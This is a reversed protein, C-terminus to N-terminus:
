RLAVEELLPQFYKEHPQQVVWHCYRSLTWCTISRVMAKKDSLCQILYPILEALHAIMGNMCGPFTNISCIAISHFQCHHFFIFFFSVSRGEAIAGLALIGSEKILWDDHFLTEKLIPLLIHLLREQFINSLVDLSAASCKRLNWETLTEDVNEDEDEEDGASGDGASGDM